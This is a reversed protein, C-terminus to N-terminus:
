RSSCWTTEKTCLTITQRIRNVFQGLLEPPTTPDPLMQLQGTSTRHALTLGEVGGRVRKQGDGDQVVRFVGQKMGVVYRHGNGRRETFLVVQDGHRLEPMGSVRMGITGVTGGLRRVTVTGAKVGRIGQTVQLTTDTVIHRGDESWRSHTKVVQGVFIVDSRGVLQPLEMKLMITAGADPATLVVFAM